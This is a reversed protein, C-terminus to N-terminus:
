VLALFVGKYGPIRYPGPNVASRRRMEPSAFDVGNSTALARLPGQQKPWANTLSTSSASFTNLPQLERGFPKRPISNAPKVTNVIKVPELLSAAVQDNAFPTGKRSAMTNATQIRKESLTSSSWIRSLDGTSAAYLNEAYIGPRYGSYGAIPERFPNVNPRCSM